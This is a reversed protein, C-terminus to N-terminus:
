PENRALEPHARLYKLAADFRGDEETLGIARQVVSSPIGSSELINGFGEIHLDGCVFIVDADTCGYLRDLWFRERIPFYRGIEIARARCFIEEHSLGERDGMFIQTELWSGDQYGMARRQEENPDCFRHEIGHEDALEKALSIRSRKLLAEESDEEAILSPRVEEITRRLCDSFELQEATLESEPTRAQARHNLGILYLM